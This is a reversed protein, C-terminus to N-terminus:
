GNFMQILEDLKKLVGLIKFPEVPLYDVAGAEMARVRKLDVDEDTGVLVIPLPCKEQEVLQRSLELPSGLRLRNHILVLRIRGWDQAEAERPVVMSRVTGKIYDLSTFGFKRGLGEAIRKAFDENETLVLIMPDRDIWLRASPLEAASKRQPRRNSGSEFSDRDRQAQLREQGDLWTRYSGLLDKDARDTFKLGVVKDDLYAVRTPAVLHLNGELPLDLTSEEGMRFYDQIKQRPDSLSLELGERGFGTVQGDLLANRSNSFTAKPLEQDPAFDVLRHSDARRLSRPLELACAALGEVQDLGQCTAVAEFKFGRDELNLSVKEGPILKWAEYEAPEMALMLTDTELGLLAFERRESRFAMTVKDNAVLLRQLVMRIALSDEIVRESPPMAVGDSPCRVLPFGATCLMRSVM